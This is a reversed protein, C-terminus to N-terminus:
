QDRQLEMIANGDCEEIVSYGLSLLRSMLDVAWLDSHCVELALYDPFAAREVTEFFPILVRDEYGEVDIKLVIADMAQKGPVYDSLMRVDVKIGDSSSGGVLSARGYDETWGKKFHLFLSGNAAGLAVPHVSVNKLGNLRINNELRGLLKPNPEFALVRSDSKAALAVPLAYVGVNAGIDYFLISKEKVISVLANYTRTEYPAGDLFLRYETYNDRPNVQMTCSDFTVRCSPLLQSLGRHVLSEPRTSRLLARLIRSVLNM